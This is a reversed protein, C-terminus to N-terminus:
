GRTRQNMIMTCPASAVHITFPLNSFCVTLINLLTHHIHTKVQQTSPYPPKILNSSHTLSSVALLSPIFCQPVPVNVNCVYSSRQSHHGLSSHKAAFCNISSAKRRDRQSQHCWALTSPFSHWIGLLLELGALTSGLLIIPHLGTTAFTSTTKPHLTLHSHRSHVTTNLSTKPQNGASETTSMSCQSCYEAIILSMLLIPCIIPFFELNANHQLM